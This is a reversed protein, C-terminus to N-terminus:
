RYLHQIFASIVAARADPDLSDIAADVMARDRDLDIADLLGGIVAPDISGLDIGALPGDTAPAEAPNDVNVPDAGAAATMLLVALLQRYYNM